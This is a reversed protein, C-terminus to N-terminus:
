LSKRLFVKLEKRKGVFHKKYNKEYEEYSIRKEPRYFKEEHMRMEEPSYSFGIIKAPNGIVISYPLTDNRVVSGAGVITGRAVHCGDMLTSNAGVWVEEDVIIDKELDATRRTSSEGFTQDPVLHHNGTIVTCGWSLGSGEKMIFKGTYSIFQFGDCISSKESIFMNYPTTIYDPCGFRITKGEPFRSKYFDAYGKRLKRYLTWCIYNYIDKLSHIKM